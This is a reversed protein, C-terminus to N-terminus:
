EKVDDDNIYFEINRFYYNNIDKLTNCNFAITYGGAQKATVTGEFEIKKWENSLDFNGFMESLHDGASRHLGSIVTAPKEARAEMVFKYKENERLVHPTTIFFQTRWSDIQKIEGTQLDITPAKSTVNFARTGDELKVIRAPSDIGDIGDRGIFCSVDDTSLDGNKVYNYWSKKVQWSIDDIYCTNECDDLRCVEIDITHFEYNRGGQERTIYEEIVIGEM